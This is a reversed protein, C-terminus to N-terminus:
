YFSRNGLTIMFGLAKCVAPLTSKLSKYFWSATQHVWSHPYLSMISYVINCECIRDKIVYFNLM